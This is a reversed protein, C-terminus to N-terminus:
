ALMASRSRMSRVRARARRVGEMQEPRTDFHMGLVAENGELPHVFVIELGRSVAVNVIRRHDNILKEALARLKETTITHEPLLAAAVDHNLQALASLTRELEFAAAQLRVEIRSSQSREGLRRDYQAIAVTLAAGLCLALVVSAWVKAELHRFGPM